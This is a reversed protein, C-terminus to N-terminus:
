RDFAAFMQEATSWSENLAERFYDLTSSWLDKITRTVLHLAHEVQVKLSNIVGQVLGTTICHSPLFSGIRETNADSPCKVCSDMANATQLKFFGQPCPECTLTNNSAGGYKGGNRFGDSPQHGIKCVCESYKSPDPNHTGQACDVCAGYGSAYIVVHTNKGCVQCSGTERIPAAGPTM